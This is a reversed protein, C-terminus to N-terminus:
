KNYIYSNLVKQLEKRNSRVCLEHIRKARTDNGVGILMDPKTLYDIVDDVNYRQIYISM